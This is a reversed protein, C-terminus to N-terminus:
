SNYTSHFKTGNVFEPLTDNMYVRAVDCYAGNKNEPDVVLHECSFVKFLVFTLLCFCLCIRKM